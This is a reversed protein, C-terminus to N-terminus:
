GQLLGLWGWLGLWARAVRDLVLHLEELLAVRELHLHAEGVVGPHELGVAARAVDVHLDRELPQEHEPEAGVQGLARAPVGRHVGVRVRHAHLGQVLALERHRQGAEGAVVDAHGLGDREHHGAGRDRAVLVDVPRLAALGVGEHELRVRRRRVAELHAREVRAARGRARELVVRLRPVHQLHGGVMAHDQAHARGRGRGRGRVLHGGVM